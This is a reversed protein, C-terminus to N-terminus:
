GAFLSGQSVGYIVVLAFLALVVGGVVLFARWARLVAEKGRKVDAYISSIQKDSENLARVDGVDIGRVLEDLGIGYYDSLLVLRQFDPYSQGLEWKSVTQRSVGLEYGLQEQSLGRKRRLDILRDNFNM